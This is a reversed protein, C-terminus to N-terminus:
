NRARGYFAAVFVVVVVAGIVVNVKALEVGLFFTLMKPTVKTYVYYLGFRTLIRFMYMYTYMHICM